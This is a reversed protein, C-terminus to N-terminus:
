QRETKKTGNADKWTEYLAITCIKKNTNIKHQKTVEEKEAQFQFPKYTAYAYTVYLDTSCM